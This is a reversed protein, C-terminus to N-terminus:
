FEKPFLTIGPIILFGTWDKWTEKADKRRQEQPTINSLQEHFDQGM